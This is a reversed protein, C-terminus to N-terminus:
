KYKMVFTFVDRTFLTVLVVLLVILVMGDVRYFAKNVNKIKVLINHHTTRLARTLLDM